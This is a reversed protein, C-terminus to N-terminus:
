YPFIFNNLGRKYFLEIAKIQYDNLGYHPISQNIKYINCIGNQIFKLNYSHNNFKNYILYEELGNMYFQCTLIKNNISFYYCDYLAKISIPTIHFEDLIVSQIDTDVIGEKYIEHYTKVIIKTEIEMMKIDNLVKKRISANQVVYLSKNKCESLIFTKYGTGVFNHILFIPQNGYIVTTEGNQEIKGLCGGKEKNFSILDEWKSFITKENTVQNLAQQSTLKSEKKLKKAYKKLQNLSIGNPAFEKKSM